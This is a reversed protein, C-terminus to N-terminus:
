FVIFSCLLKCTDLLNRKEDNTIALAMPVVVLVIALFKM